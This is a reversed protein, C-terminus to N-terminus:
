LCEDTTADSVVELHVAKISFCIFVCLYAKVIQPKCTYGCKLLFPGAYDVGCTTFPPSPTVRSAPLQGMMQTQTHATSRRCVTCSRCISWIQRRAGVIHLRRGTASLLLSPGCYSLSVHKDHCLLYCLRSRGSLIILHTQSLSLHSRSLRGGVRILGHKDIYPSLSIITSSSPISQEHNLKTLEHTFARLQALHFLHHEAAEM